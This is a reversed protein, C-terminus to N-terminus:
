LSLLLTGDVMISRSLSFLILLPFFLSPPSCVNRFRLYLKEGKALPIPLSTQSPNKFFWESSVYSPNSAILVENVEIDSSSAYLYGIDDVAIYFTYYGAYPATFVSAADQIYAMSPFNLNLRTHWNNGYDNYMSFYFRQRWAFSLIATDDDLRSAFRDWMKVWWGPSGTNRPSIAIQLDSMLSSLYNNAYADVVDSHPIRPATRCTITDVSSTLVSCPFGGVLVELFRSSFGSGTITVITGGAISGISPSVAFITPYVASNFVTGNLTSQYMYFRQFAGDVNRGNEFCFARGTSASGHSFDDQATLSLNLYGGPMDQPPRFYLTYESSRGSLADSNLEDDSGLDASYGEGFAVKISSLDVNQSRVIIQTSASGWTASPLWYIAPTWYNYYYFKPPIQPTLVGEVGRVYIRIDVQSTGSWINGSRCAESECKPTTCIIRGSTSYHSIIKCLGNGVYVLTETFLSDSMFNAGSITLQTGGEVGGFPPSVDAVIPPQLQTFLKEALCASLLFFLPLLRRFPM